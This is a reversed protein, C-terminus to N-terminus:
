DRIFPSVNDSPGIHVIQFLWYIWIPLEAKTNTLLFGRGNRLLGRFFCGWIKVFGLRSFYINQGFDWGLGGSFQWEQLDWSCFVWFFM